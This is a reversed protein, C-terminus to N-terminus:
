RPLPSSTCTTSSASSPLSHRIPETPAYATYAPGYWTRASKKPAPPHFSTPRDTQVNFSRASCGSAPSPSSLRATAFSRTSTTWTPKQVHHSSITSFGTPSSLLSNTHGAAWSATYTYHPTGSSVFPQCRQLHHPLFHEWAAEDTTTPRKEPAERRRGPM